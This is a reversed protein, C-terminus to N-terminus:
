IKEVAARLDLYALFWISQRWGSIVPSAKSSAGDKPAESGM